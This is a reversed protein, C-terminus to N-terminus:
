SPAMAFVSRSTGFKQDHSHLYDVIERMRDLPFYDPDVTFIRRRDMYDILGQEACHRPIDGIWDEGIDTWMTELPIGAASYNTIVESVDIYDTNPSNYIVKPRELLKLM